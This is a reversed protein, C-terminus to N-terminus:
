NRANSIPINVTGVSKNECIHTEFCSIENFVIGVKQMPTETLLEEIRCAKEGCCFQMQKLRSKVSLATTALSRSKQQGQLENQGFAVKKM